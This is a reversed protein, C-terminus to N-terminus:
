GKKNAEIWLEIMKTVKPALLASMKMGKDSCAIRFKRMLERDILISLIVKSDNKLAM